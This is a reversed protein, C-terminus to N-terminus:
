FFESGDSDSSSAKLKEETEKALMESIGSYSKKKKESSSNQNLYAEFHKPTFLTDPRLYKEFETGLWEASKKDIM